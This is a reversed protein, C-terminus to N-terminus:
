NCAHYRRAVVLLNNIKRIVEAWRRVLDHIDRAYFEPLKSYDFFDQLYTKLQDENRIKQWKPQQEPVQVLSLRKVSFWTLMIPATATKM